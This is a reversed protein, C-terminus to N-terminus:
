ANETEVEEIYNAITNVVVAVATMVAAPNDSAKAIMWAYEYAEDLTDRDAFMKNRLDKALEANTM